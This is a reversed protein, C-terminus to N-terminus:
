YHAEEKSLMTLVSLLTDAIQANDRGYGSFTINREIIDPFM